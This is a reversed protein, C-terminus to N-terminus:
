FEQNLIENECRILRQHVETQLAENPLIKVTAVCYTLIPDMGTYLQVHAFM